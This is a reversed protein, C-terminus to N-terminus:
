ASAPRRRLRRGFAILGVGLLALEAPEPVTVEESSGEVLGGLRIQRVDALPVTTEILIARLLDGDTAVVNFFNSGQSGIASQASVTGGARDYATITVLGSAHGQAPKLVNLNAEFQDFWLNLAAPEIRLSTYAGDSAGVRAQGGNAALSETGTLNFLVGTTTIGEISSGTLTLSPDNFLLNTDPNGAFPPAFDIIIAAGAALPSSISLVAGLFLGRM